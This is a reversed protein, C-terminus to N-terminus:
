RPRHISHSASCIITFSTGHWIVTVRFFAAFIVAVQQHMWLNKKVILKVYQPRLLIALMKCIIDGFSNGQFFIHKLNSNVSIQEKPDLPCFRCIMTWPLAQRRASISLPGTWKCMYTDGSSLTKLHYHRLIWHMWYMTTNIWESDHYLIALCWRKVKYM